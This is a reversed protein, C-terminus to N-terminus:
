SAPEVRTVYLELVWTERNRPMREITRELYPLGARIALSTEFGEVDEPIPSEASGVLVLERGEAEWASALSRYEDWTLGESAVAIPWGCFSQIVQPLTREVAGGPLVIAATNTGLSRCFNDLLGHGPAFAKLGMVPASVVAAQVTMGLLAVPLVVRAAGFGRHRESWVYEAFYVAFLLIGPITIPLFRRLAWIQDPFISPRWLYVVSVALFVGLFPMIEQARGSVWRWTALAVGLFGLVLGINGMYSAMRVITFEAYTRTQDVPVGERTQLGAILPAGPLQRAVELGPRFFWGYIFLVTLILVVIAALLGRYTHYLNRVRHLLRPPRVIFLIGVSIMVVLLGVVPVVLHRLDRVYPMSVVLADLGAVSVTTAMGLSAPLVFSRLERQPGWRRQSIGLTIFYAALPVLVVIADIRAMCGAGLLAGGFWSWRRNRGDKGEGLAWLGGFLLIQALIETYADRTFHLFVINAALALIAVLGFLPRVFRCSFLFFILLSLGGLVPNVLFLADPGGLWAGVAMVAPLLHMFQVSLRTEAENAYFGSGAVDLVERYEAFPGQLGLGFVDGTTALRQATAVYVGPDRNVVIHETALVSNLVTIVLSLLLVLGSFVGTYQRTAVGERQWKHVVPVPGLWRVLAVAGLVMVPIVPVPLFFGLIGTPPSVVGLTLLLALAITVISLLFRSPDVRSKTPALTDNLDGLSQTMDSFKKLTHPPYV